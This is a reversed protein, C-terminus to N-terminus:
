EIGEIIIVKNRFTISENLKKSLLLNGIPSIPSIIMIENGNIETLGLSTALFYVGASTAILAGLEAKVYNKDFGSILQLTNLESIATNLQKVYLEQENQTQARFTEHKDGVTCKDENIASNNLTDVLSSLKNVKAEQTNICFDIIDKKSLIM